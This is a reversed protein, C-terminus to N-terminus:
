ASREPHAFVPAGALRLGAAQLYILLLVRLTSLPYRLTMARLSRPSLELRRLDLGAEFVPQGDRRSQIRVSAGLGPLPAECTYTHDMGMFPSVHLAKGFSGRGGPIVYAHREGWPTNTVEAMVAELNEDHEDLCYYFSVPNFCHGLSRLQTLLRISGAPRSGTRAEVTDRVARDLPRSPDGHYDSRRFRVLGPSPSLLRGELLQPLEALDLYALALRYEFGRSPTTRRHRVVGEYLCSAPKM